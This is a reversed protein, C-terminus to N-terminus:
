GTKPKSYQGAASVQVCPLSALQTFMSFYVAEIDTVRHNEEASVLSAEDGALQQVNITTSGDHLRDEPQGDLADFLPRPAASFLSPAVREGYFFM